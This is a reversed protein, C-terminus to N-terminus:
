NRNLLSKGITNPDLWNNKVDRLDTILGAPSINQAVSVMRNLRGTAENTNQNSAIYTIKISSNITSNKDNIKMLEPLKNQPGVDIENVVIRGVSPIQLDKKKFHRSVFPEVEVRKTKRTILGTTKKVDQKVVKSSFMEITKDNPTIIELNSRELKPHDITGSIEQKIEKEDLVILTAALAIAFVAAVKVFMWYPRSKNGIQGHVKSWSEEMPTVELDNLKEKFFNDTKNLQDM